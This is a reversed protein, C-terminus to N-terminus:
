DIYRVQNRGAQKANYMARDSRAILQELSDKPALETVGISVTVGYEGAATQIRVERVMACLREAISVADALGTEVLLIVFEEGGYRSVLDMERLADRFCAAITKLLRDGAAHSHFDNFWKFHDIDIFLASLPRLFRGAREVERHGLDYLGRRNLIETLDDQISLRELREYLRANELALTAQDTFLSVLRLDDSSFPLFPETNGVILVGRVLGKNRMPLGM